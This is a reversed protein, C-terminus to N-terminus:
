ITENGIYYSGWTQGVHDPNKRNEVETSIGLYNKVRSPEGREYEVEFGEKELSEYLRKEDWNKVAGLMIKGEDYYKRMLKIERMLERSSRKPGEEADEVGLDPVDSLVFAGYKRARTINNPNEEYEKEFSTENIEGAGRGGAYEANYWVPASLMQMENNGSLKVGPSWFYATNVSKAGPIAKEILEKAISLTAGGSKVEDIILINKGELTTPTNMIKEPNEEEIGDKIFLARIRAYNEEYQKKANEDKEIESLARKYDDFVARRKSVGGGLRDQLDANGSSDVDIGVRQFWPLRDINLYTHEPRKEKSFEDWFVNVFWSVPRASKDLYIIFDPKELKEGQETKKDYETSSGDITAIIEATKNVYEHCTKDIGWFIPSTNSANTRKAFHEDIFTPILQYQENFFPFDNKDVTFREPTAPGHEPIIKSTEVEQTAAMGVAGLMNSIEEGTHSLEGVPNSNNVENNVLEGTFTSGPKVALVKKRKKIVTPQTQTQGTSSSNTGGLAEKNM